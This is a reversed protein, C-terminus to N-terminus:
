SLAEFSTIVSSLLAPLLREMTGRKGYSKTTLLSTIMWFKVTM